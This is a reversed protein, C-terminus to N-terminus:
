SRTDSLSLFRLSFNLDSLISSNLDSLFRLSFSTKEPIKQQLFQIRHQIACLISNQLLCYINHQLLISNLLISKQAVNATNQVNRRACSSSLLGRPRVGVGVRPRVRLRLRLHNGLIIYFGFIIHFHICAMIANQLLLNYKFSSHSMLRLSSKVTLLLKRNKFFFDVFM